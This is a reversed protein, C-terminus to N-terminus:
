QGNRGGKKLFKNIEDLSKVLVSNINESACQPMVDIYADEPDQVICTGGLEHVRKLGAAGDCNAGTLIIGTLGERYVEAASNFLVDISPRSFNIKQEISLSFTFDDEISLHYQAPAFYIMGTEIISEGSEAEKIKFDTINRYLGMLNEVSKEIHTVVIISTSATNNHDNLVKKLADVAGASVGLVILRHQM